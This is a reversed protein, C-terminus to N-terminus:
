YQILPSFLSRGCPWSRWHSRCRFSDLFEHEPRFRAVQVVIIGAPHGPRWADPDRLSLLDQQRIQGQPLPARGHAGVRFCIGNM